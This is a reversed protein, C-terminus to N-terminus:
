ASAQIRMMGFLHAHTVSTLFFFALPRYCADALVRDEQLVQFANECSGCWLHVGWCSSGNAILPEVYYSILSPRNELGIDM